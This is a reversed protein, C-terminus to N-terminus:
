DGSAPSHRFPRLLRGLDLVALMGGEAAPRGPRSLPPRSLLPSTTRARFAVPGEEAGAGPPGGEPAGGEPPKGELPEGELPEIPVGGLVRDVRLALRRPGERLLLLHGPATGGAPPLGLVAALDLVAYLRGARGALGLVAPPAGPLPTVAGEPIVEAVLEKRIGYREEGLACALVRREGAPAAGPGSPAPHAAGRRALRAAREELLRAARAPDLLPRDPDLEPLALPGLRLVM